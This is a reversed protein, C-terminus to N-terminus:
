DAPTVMKSVGASCFRKSVGLDTDDDDSDSPVDDDQGAPAAGSASTSAPTAPKSANKHAGSEM